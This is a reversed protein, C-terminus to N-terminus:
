IVLSREYLFLIASDKVFTLVFTLLDSYIKYVSLYFRVKCQRCLAYKFSHALLSEFGRGVPEYGTVRDLQAVSANEVQINYCLTVANDLRIECKGTRKKESCELDRLFYRQGLCCM